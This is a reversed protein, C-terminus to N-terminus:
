GTTDLGATAAVGRGRFGAGAAGDGAGFSGTIDIAKGVVGLFVVERGAPLSLLQM